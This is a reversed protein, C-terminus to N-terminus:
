NSNQLPIGKKVIHPQMEAAGAPTQSREAIIQQALFRTVEVHGAPTFHDAYLSAAGKGLMLSRLSIWRIQLSAMMDTIRKEGRSQYRQQISGQIGSPIPNGSHECCRLQLNAGKVRGRRGRQPSPVWSVDLTEHSLLAPVGSLPLGFATSWEMDSRLSANPSSLFADYYTKQYLGLIVFDGRNVHHMSSVEAIITGVSTQAPPRTQFETSSRAFAARLSTFDANLRKQFHDLFVESMAQGEAAVPTKLELTIAQPCDMTKPDAKTYHYKLSANFEFKDDAWIEWDIPGKDNPKGSFYILRSFAPLSLLERSEPFPDSACKSATYRSGCALQTLFLLLVFWTLMSTLAM